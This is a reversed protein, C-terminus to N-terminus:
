FNYYLFVQSSSMGLFIVSLTFALGGLIFKSYSITSTRYIKNVNNAFVVFLILIVLYLLLYPPLISNTSFESIHSLLPVGFILSMSDIYDLPVPKSTFGFMASLIKMAKDFDEARFFVWTINIFNFTILWAFFTPIKVGIKRWFNLIILAIGHLGGWLIFTWGAGHWIGGLLFTILINRNKKIFSYRNGGLPIYIYDRLFKSLTIHWRRWFDQINIAKYPSNFNIPLRINILLASGIAMDAYGSFDFYLQFTYSLSLAWAEITSILNETSYGTSVFEALSDAIVVKKFLGISFIFLGLSINKINTKRKALDDFQPMLEKHHVIPGAILQPFFSVYTAYHLFKYDSTKNAYVDALFAIQQFTFFSIGLPIILNLTSLKSSFLNNYNDIFFDFHKFYLLLSLNFGIGIFLLLKKRILSKNISKGVQFNFFISVLLIPLYKIDWWSYFFLSAALLWLLQLDYKNIRSLAFYGIFVIPLFFLFYIYSSFIM